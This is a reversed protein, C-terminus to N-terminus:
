RWARASRAGPRAAREVGRARRLRGPRAPRGRLAAGQEVARRRAREAARRGSRRSSRRRRWSRPRPRGRPRPPSRSRASSRARARGPAVIQAVAPHLREADHDHRRGPVERQRDRRAAHEGREGRAVADDELGRGLGHQDAPMEGLGQPVGSDRPLREGEQRAGVAVHAAPEDGIRAHVGDDEGARDLRRAAEERPPRVEREEGLRAALVRDDDGREGVAVLGDAIEDARGEAVVALLARRRAQGDALGLDVVVVVNRRWSRSAAALRGTPSAQSGELRM